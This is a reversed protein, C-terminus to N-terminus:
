KLTNESIQAKWRGNLDCEALPGAAGLTKRALRGPPRSNIQPVYTTSGAAMKATWVADAAVISRDLAWVEDRLQRYLTHRKHNQNILDDLEAELQASTIAEQEISAELKVAAAKYMEQRRNRTQREKHEEDSLLSSVTLDEISPLELDLYSSQALTQEAQQALRKARRHNHGFVM